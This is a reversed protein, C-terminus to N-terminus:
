QLVILFNWFFVKFVCGGGYALADLYLDIKLALCDVTIWGHENCSVRGCNLLQQVFIPPALACAADVDSCCRKM